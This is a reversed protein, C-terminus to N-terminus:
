TRSTSPTPHSPLRREPTPNSFEDGGLGTRAHILHPAPAGRRGRRGPTVTEQGGDGDSRLDKIAVTGAAAEDPGVVLALRAGSRDAAKFQAKPSRGDWARDARLGAARLRATLDRAADGGAFDVVFM